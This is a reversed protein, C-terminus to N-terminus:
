QKIEVYAKKRLKELWDKLREQFKEQFIMNYIQNRVNELATTKAPFKNKLQFIYIGNDVEIPKSIEDKKLNFVVDELEPLM